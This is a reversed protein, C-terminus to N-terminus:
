IGYNNTFLWELLNTGHQIWEDDLVDIPEQDFTFRFYKDTIESFKMDDGFKSYTSSWNRLYQKRIDRVGDLVALYIIIGGFALILNERSDSKKNKRSYYLSKMWNFRINTYQLPDPISTFAKLVDRGWLLRINQLFDFAYFTLRNLPGVIEIPKNTIIKDIESLSFSISDFRVTSSSKRFKNPFVSNVKEESIKNVLLFDPHDWHHIEDPLDLFVAFDLDSSEQNFDGRVYSGYIYISTISSSSPIQLNFELVLDSLINEIAPNSM